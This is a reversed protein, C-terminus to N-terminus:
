GGLSYGSGYGSYNGGEWDWTKQIETETPLGVEKFQKNQEKLQKREQEKQKKLMLDKLADNFFDLAVDNRLLIDLVDLHEPSLVRDLEEVMAVV